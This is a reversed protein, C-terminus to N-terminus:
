GKSLDGAIGFKCALAPLTLHESICWPWRTPHPCQATSTSSHRDELPEHTNQTHQIWNGATCAPITITITITIAFLRRSAHTDDYKPMQDQMSDSSRLM